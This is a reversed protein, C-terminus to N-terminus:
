DVSYTGQSVNISKIREVYLFSSETGQLLALLASEIHLLIDYSCEVHCTVM